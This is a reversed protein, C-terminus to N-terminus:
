PARGPVEDDPACRAFEDRAERLSITNAGGRYDPDRFQVRDDEWGCVGCIAYTGPPPEDLTLRDCCPCAYLVGDSTPHGGLAALADYVWPEWRGWPLQLLEDLVEPLARAALVKAPDDETFAYWEGLPGESAATVVRGDPLVARRYTLAPADAVGHPGGSLTPRGSVEGVRVQPSLDDRSLTRLAAAVLQRARERAAYADDAETLIGLYLGDERGGTIVGIHRDSQHLAEDLAERVEMASLPLFMEVHYTLREGPESHDTVLADHCRGDVVVARM